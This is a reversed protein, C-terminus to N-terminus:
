PMQITIINCSHGFFFIDIDSKRVAYSFHFYYDKKLITFVFFLFLLTEMGRVGNSFHIFYIAGHNQRPIFQSMTFMDGLFVQVLVKEGGPFKFTFEQKRLSVEPSEM